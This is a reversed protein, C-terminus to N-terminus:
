KLLAKVEDSDLNDPTALVVGTDIRKEITEGKLHAVLREVSFYGMRYPNQM